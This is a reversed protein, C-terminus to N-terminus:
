EKKFIRHLQLEGFILAWALSLAIAKTYSFTDPKWSWLIFGLMISLISYYIFDNQFRKLRFKLLEHKKEEVAKEAKKIEEDIEEKKIDEYDEQLKRKGPM